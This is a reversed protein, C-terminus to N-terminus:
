QRMPKERSLELADSLPMMKGVRIGQRGYVEIFAKDLPNM